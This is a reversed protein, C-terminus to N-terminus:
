DVDIALLLTDAERHTGQRIIGPLRAHFLEAHALQDFTHDRTQGLEPSEGPKFAVNLAQDMDGLHSVMTNLMGLFDKLFALDTSKPDHPNIGLLVANSQAQAFDIRAGVGVFVVLLEDLLKPM